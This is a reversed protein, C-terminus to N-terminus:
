GQVTGVFLGLAGVAFFKALAHDPSRPVVRRSLFITALVDAVFTWYGIGMTMASLALVIPGYTNMCDLSPLSMWGHAMAGVFLGVVLHYLYFGGAGLVTCWFSFTALGASWLPRGAVRPLVYWCLGTATITGGIVIVLHTNSLDRVMHGAYGSELLWQRVRPLSKLVAHIGGLTLAVAGALFYKPLYSDYAALEAATFSQRPAARSEGPVLRFLLWAGALLAAVFGLADLNTIEDIRM